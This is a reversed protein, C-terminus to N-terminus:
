QCISVGKIMRNHSKTIYFLTDTERDYIGISFFNNSAGLVTMQSFDNEFFWNRWDHWIERKIDSPNKYADMITRSGHRNMFYNFTNVVGQAQKTNPNIVEFDVGAVTEIRM